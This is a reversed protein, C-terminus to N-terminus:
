DLKTDLYDQYIKIDVMETQNEPDDDDKLPQVGCCLCELIKNVWGRWDILDSSM